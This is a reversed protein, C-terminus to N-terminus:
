YGKNMLQTIRAAFQTESYFRNVDSNKSFSFKGEFYTIMHIGDRSIASWGAADNSVSFVGNKNRQADIEKPTM